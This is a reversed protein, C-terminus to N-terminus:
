GHLHRYIREALARSVGAVKALDDVAAEQVGQLGGFHALLRQRRKPGVGPIDALASTTRARSRRVRHGSVAFRHAEDRIAQVLHLGPHEPALALVAGPARARADRRGASARSGKAVGVVPVDGIGLEALAARAANVQGRGGDILVLDPLRAGEASPHAYRRELAQRLAACDDGPAVGRVNFRRYEARQLGLRDYVVCAAVAAEGLTHSVDFCEIRPRRRRCASRM